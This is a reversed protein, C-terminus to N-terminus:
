RPGEWLSCKVTHTGSVYSSVRGRLYPHPENVISRQNGDAAVSVTNITYWNTGDVSGEILITASATGTGVTMFTAGTARRADIAAGTSTSTVASVNTIPDLLAFRGSSM